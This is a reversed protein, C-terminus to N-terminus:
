QLGATSAFPAIYGDRVVAAMLRLLLQVHGFLLRGFEDAREGRRLVHTLEDGDILREAALANGRRSVLVDEQLLHPDVDRSVQREGSPPM